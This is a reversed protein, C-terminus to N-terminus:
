KEIGVAAGDLEIIEVHTNKLLKKLPKRSITSLAAVMSQRVALTKGVKVSAGNKGTILVGIYGNESKFLRGEAPTCTFASPDQRVTSVRFRRFEGQEDPVKISRIEVLRSGVCSNNQKIWDM